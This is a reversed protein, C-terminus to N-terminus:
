ILCDRLHRSIQLCAIVEMKFGDQFIQIDQTLKSFKADPHINGQRMHWKEIMTFIQKLFNKSMNWFIADKLFNEETGSNESIKKSNCLLGFICVRM